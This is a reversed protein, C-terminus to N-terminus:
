QTMNVLDRIVFPLNGDHKRLLETLVEHNSFGMERLQKLGAAIVPDPHIPNEPTGIPASPATNTAAAAAASSSPSPGDDIVITEKRSSAEGDVDMPKNSNNSKQEEPKQQQQEANNEGVAGDGFIGRAINRILEAGESNGQSHFAQM